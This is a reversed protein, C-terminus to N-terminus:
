LDLKSVGNSIQSVISAVDSDGDIEVEYDKGGVHWEIQIGGTVTPVPSATAEANNPLQGLVSRAKSVAENSLPKAGYTDWNPKRLSKDRALEELREKGFSTM